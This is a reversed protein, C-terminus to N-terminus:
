APCNTQYSLVTSRQTQHVCKIEVGGFFGLMKDKVDPLGCVLELELWSEKWICSGVHVFQPQLQM